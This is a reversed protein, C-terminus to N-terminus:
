LIKFDEEKLIEWVLQFARKKCYLNVTHDLEQHISLISHEKFFSLFDKKSTDLAYGCGSHINGCDIDEDLLFISANIEYFCWNSIVSMVDDNNVNIAVIGYKSVFFESKQFFATYDTLSNDEIVVSTKQCNFQSYIKRVFDRTAEDNDFTASIYVIDKKVLHRTKKPIMDVSISLNIM